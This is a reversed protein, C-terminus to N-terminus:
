ETIIKFNISANKIQLILKRSRFKRRTGRKLASNLGPHITFAKRLGKAAELLCSCWIILNSSSKNSYTVQSERTIKMHTFSLSGQDLVHQVTGHCRDPEHKQRKQEKSFLVHLLISESGQGLLPNPSMQPVQQSVSVQSHEKPICVTIDKM